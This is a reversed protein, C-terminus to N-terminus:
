PEAAGSQGASGLYKPWGRALAESPCELVVLRGSDLGFAIRGPAVLAGPSRVPSGVAVSRHKRTKGDV